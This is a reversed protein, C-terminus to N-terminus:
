AHVGTVKRIANAIDIQPQLWHRIVYADYGALENSFRASESPGDAHLIGPAQTSGVLAITATLGPDSIGKVAPLGPITFVGGMLGEPTQVGQNSGKVKDNSFFDMWALPNCAVFDIPYPAMELMAAEIDDYPNVATGWDHGSVAEAEEAIEKIQKNEAAALGKGADEIDISMLNAGAQYRSERPLVVLVVNKWLEYPIYDIGVTTIEPEELVRVKEHATLPTGRRVKFALSMTPAVRCANRMLYKPRAIALTEELIVESRIASIDTPMVMQGGKFDPANPDFDGLTYYRNTVPNHYVGGRFPLESLVQQLSIKNGM